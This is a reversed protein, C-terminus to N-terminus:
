DDTHLLPFVIYNTQIYPLRVFKQCIDSIRWWKRKSLKDVIYIDLISSLCPIKFFDSRKEYEKGIIVFENIETNFSINEVFVINGQRLGCCSNALDNSRL